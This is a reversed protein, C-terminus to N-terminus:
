QQQQHHQQQQQQIQQVVLLPQRAWMGQASAWLQSRSDV